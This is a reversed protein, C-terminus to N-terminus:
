TQEMQKFVSATNPTRLLVKYSQALGPYFKVIVRSISYLSAIVVMSYSIQPTPNM